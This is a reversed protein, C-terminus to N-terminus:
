KTLAEYVAEWEPGPPDDRLQECRRLFPAVARDDPFEGGLARLRVIAEEWAQARYAALAAAFGRARRELTGAADAVRRGLLEYVAVAQLRGKVKVRDIERCIFEDGIADRTSEAILIRAGYQKTLGELRSGLNVADGMATYSFRQASGFNGVAAEGTNIGVGIELLPLGLPKWRAHLTTLADLMDLAAHCCRAAHDPMAVPAGWFAMVADGIYKDLLGERRFVIGTMAGLYENLLEGLEEPKLHESISTFSRIDSFFITIERREGGLRLRAPDRAIMETVEPNLYLRFADRIKRKEREQTLTQYTTGGLTALLIAGLPYIAGLALGRSAFLQQTGWAYLVALAAATGVAWLVPLRLIVIGLLLGLLVIGGAEAFRLWWPRWLSTGHLINELVTAQVEVGPVVASFPTAVEDFGAATYGVLVIKGDLAARPVRGAIVDAASLYPVTGRPGLYNIWLEGNENVPLDLKGVRVGVVGARALTLSAFVGGLHRRVLELSLSPALRGAARVALPVRRYLGDLDTFFNIHGSSAAADLLEPIDVQARTADKFVPTTEPDAGERARVSLEPILKVEEALRPDTPGTFEFFHALVVRGSARFARALRRDNDFSERVEAVVERAPRDPSAALARDLAGLDLSLDPEDFVVDFGIATAGSATARDVLTALRARPWPWRGLEDISAEDIGVIVVDGGAPRPGRVVHRVDLIKLDLRELVDPEVLRVAAVLTAIAATVGVVILARM